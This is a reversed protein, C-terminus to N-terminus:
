LKDGRSFLSFPKIEGLKYSGAPRREFHHGFYWKGEYFVLYLFCYGNAM